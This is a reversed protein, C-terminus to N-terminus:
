EILSIEKEKQWVCYKAFEDRKEDPLNMFDIVKENPFMSECYAPIVGDPVIGIKEKETLRDSLIKAEHMYVPLGARRLALYLKVSEVTRNWADGAVSLYYGREDNGVYLSIHTSNGGRCVEWPHGGHFEKDHLWAHFADASDPDIESLGDDRGDAHKEYQARISLDTGDYNNAKYGLSCFRYFDNATMTPIRDKLDTPNGSQEAAYRVFDDIDKQPLDEFFSERAEPFVDWLHRRLITGTRHQVPLERQVRENYTGNELEAICENVSDRIWEAFESIDIPFASHEKRKDDEIVFKEGLFIARYNIETDDVATFSFWETENPYEDKWWQEFEERSEVEGNELMEDFNGFDEITGREATFWLERAGNKSVPSLRKILAFIEDLLEYTRDDYSTNNNYARYDRDKLIYIYHKVRPAKLKESMGCGGNECM